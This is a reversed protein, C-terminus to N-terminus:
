WVGLLAPRSEHQKMMISLRVMVNDLYVSLPDFGPIDGENLSRGRLVIFYIDDFPRGNDSPRRDIRSISCGSGDRFVSLIDVLAVVASQPFSFRVVAQRYSKEATQVSRPIDDITSLLVFRTFNDQAAQIGKGLVELGPYLAVTMSSAVAAAWLDDGKGAAVREAALATSPVKIRTSQPLNQTLYRACQGLAQEHSLVMKVQELKVGKRVLLCHQVGITKEGKIHIATGVSQRRLLDITDIVIGYISNEWPLLAFQAQSGLADFNETITPLALYHAADAFLEHAAQHSYTGEPGLFAVCPKETM